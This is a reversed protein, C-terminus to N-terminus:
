AQILTLGPDTGQLAPLGTSIRLPKQELTIRFEYDLFGSARCDEFLSPRIFTVPTQAGTAGHM